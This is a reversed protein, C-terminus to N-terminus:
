KIKNKKIFKLLSRADMEKTFLQKIWEYENDLGLFFNMNEAKEHINPSIKQKPVRDKRLPISKIINNLILMRKVIDEASLEQYWEDLEENVIRYKITFNHFDLYPRRLSKWINIKEFKKDL